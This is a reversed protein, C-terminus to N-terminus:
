NHKKNEIHIRNPDVSAKCIYDGPNGDEEM